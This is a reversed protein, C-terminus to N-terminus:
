KRGSVFEARVFNNRGNARTAHTFHVLGAVCPEITDDRDLDRGSLEALTELAFSASDSRQVM